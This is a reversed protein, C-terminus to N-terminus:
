LLTVQQVMDWGRGSTQPLLNFGKRRLANSKDMLEQDTFVPSSTGTEDSSNVSKEVPPKEDSCAAPEAGTNKGGEQSRRLLTPWPSEYKQVLLQVNPRAEEEEEAKEDELVEPLSEESPTAEELDPTTSFERLVRSRFRRKTEVRDALEVLHELRAVMELPIDLRGKAPQLSQLMRRVRLSPMDHVEKRPREPCEESASTSLEEIDGHEAFYKSDMGEVLLSQEKPRPSQLGPRGILEAYEEARTFQDFFARRGSVEESEVLCSLQTARRLRRNPLGRPDAEAGVEGSPAGLLKDDRPQKARRLRRGNGADVDATCKFVGLSREYEARSSKTEKSQQEQQARNRRTIGVAKRDPFFSAAGRTAQGFSM